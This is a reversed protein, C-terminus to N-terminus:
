LSVEIPSQILEKETLVCVTTHGTELEIILQSEEATIQAASQVFIILIRNARQQIQKISTVFPQDLHTIILLVFSRHNMAMMEETLQAAFPRSKTPEIRALHLQMDELNGSSRNISFPVSVEGITLFEVESGQKILETVLSLAIEVAAEFALLNISEYTCSNLIVFADTSREYEFEKTMMKNNRATQKWDIWSYKDGSVYERIGSAMNSNKISFSQISHAGQNGSMVQENLRISRRSPYATLKNEVHFLQEKKIFGFLDGTRIRIAQLEHEGRPVQDITYPVQIIRRFWPFRVKKMHRNIIVHEPENLYNYKDFQSDIKNMTPPFVEEIICYYLPFPISRKIKVTITVRDGARIVAQPLDRTVQWRKMPYLLVGIQYIYIPLFGYFLFWSVFEGQFMAYFYLGSLLLTILVFNGIILIKGKM